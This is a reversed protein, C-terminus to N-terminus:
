KINLIYKEIFSFKRKREKVGYNSGLASNIILKEDIFFFVRKQKKENM